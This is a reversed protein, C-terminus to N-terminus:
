AEWIARAKKFAARDKSTKLPRLNAVRVSVKRGNAKLIVARCDSCPDDAGCYEAIDACEGFFVFRM